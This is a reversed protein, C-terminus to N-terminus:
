ESFLRMVWDKMAILPFYFINYSPKLVFNWTNAQQQINQWLFAIIEM